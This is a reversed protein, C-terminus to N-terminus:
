RAGLKAKISCAALSRCAKLASSKGDTEPPGPEPPTMDPPRQAAAPPAAPPRMVGSSKGASGPQDAYGQECAENMIQNQRLHLASEVPNPLCLSTMCKSKM